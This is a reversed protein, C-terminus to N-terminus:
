KVEDECRPSSHEGPHAGDDVENGGRQFRGCDWLISVECDTRVSFPSVHM